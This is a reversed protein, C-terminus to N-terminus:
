ERESVGRTKGVGTNRIAMTGLGPAAMGRKARLTTSKKTPPKAWSTLFYRRAAWKSLAWSRNTKDSGKSTKRLEIVEQGDDEKFCPSM